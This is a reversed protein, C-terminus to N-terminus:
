RLAGPEPIFEKRGGNASRELAAPAHYRWGTLYVLTGAALLVASVRYMMFYGRLEALHGLVPSMATISLDYGLMYLAMSTGRNRPPSSDYTLTSLSPFIYGHGTGTLIGVLVLDLTGAARSAQFLGLAIMALAGAVVMRRDVRDLLPGTGVRLAIVTLSYAVFFASPSGLGAQQTFDTIFSFMATYGLGFVLSPVVLYLMTRTRIVRTWADPQLHREQHPRDPSLGLSMLFAAFCAVAALLFLARYRLSMALPLVRLLWECLYPSIAQAIFGGAGYIAVAEARRGAPAMEAVYTVVATFYIVSAAGALARM